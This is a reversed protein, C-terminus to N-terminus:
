DPRIVSMTMNEEDKEILTYDRQSLMEKCIEYAKQKKRIFELSEM